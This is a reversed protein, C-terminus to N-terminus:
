EPDIVKLLDQMQKFEAKGGNTYRAVWAPDSKLEALKQQADAVTMVGSNPGDSTIFKAEGIKTGIERFMEMVAAYGAVSELAQITEPKVKLAVAANKAIVLNQAHNAGWNKVLTERETKLNAAREGAEAEEVGNVYKVVAEAVKAAADKPLFASASAARMADAFGEDTYKGDQGKLAPFDYDKPDLPMGLRQYINKMADPEKTPDAPLRLVRDAPLGILKEASQYAKTLETAVKAPDNVDYGKNQWHQIVDAEVKGQFWPAAPPPSGAGAGAGANAETM